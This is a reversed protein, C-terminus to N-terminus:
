PWTMNKVSGLYFILPPPDILHLSYRLKLLDEEARKLYVYVNMM